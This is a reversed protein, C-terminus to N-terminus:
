NLTCALLMPKSSNDLKNSCIIIRKVLCLLNYIKVSTGQPSRASFIRKHNEIAVNTLSYRFPM